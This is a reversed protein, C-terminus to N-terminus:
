SILVQGDGFNQLFPVINKQEASWDTIAFLVHDFAGRFTEELAKRFLRAIDNSDNGFAGCGWAGLVLSRHGHLVAVALVKLMREWMVPVIREIKDPMYQRVKNANVAPSTIISCLYPTDLLAGDDSRIVTVNPSYIVFNSYFPGTHHVHHYGYMANGHLCAWLASSRALYEEQARAGDLFGGGPYKASAFNLVAPDHGKNKLYIVGQLTTINLVEVLMPSRRFVNIPLATEPPYAVTGCVAEAVLRSIDVQMGTASVYSGASLIGVTEEGLAMARERSIDLRMRLQNSEDGNFQHAAEYSM